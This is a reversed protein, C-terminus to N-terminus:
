AKPLDGTVQALARRALWGIACVVFVTAVIGTALMVPQQRLNLRSMEAAMFVITVTRPLNGLATGMAFPALRCGASAMLLNTAGFPVVPALRLLAVILGARFAGSELMARRVAECRPSEHAADALRSGVVRRAIAYGITAAATIGTVAVPLGTTVGFAWGCVVELMYTPVLSFGALGAVAAAAVVALPASDREKLWPGLRHFLGVVVVGGVIPLGVMVAALPGAPGLRRVWGRICNDATPPAPPAGGGPGGIRLAEPSTVPSTLETGHLM